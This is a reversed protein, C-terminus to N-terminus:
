HHRVVANSDGSTGDDSLIRFLLWALVALIILPIFKFVLGLAGIFATFLAVIAAIIGVVGGFISAGKHDRWGYYAVAGALCAIIVAIITTKLM